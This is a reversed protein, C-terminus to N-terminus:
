DSQVFHLLSRSLDETQKQAPLIQVELMAATKDDIPFSRETYLTAAHDEFQELSALAAREGLLDAGTQVALAFAGWVGSSTSPECGANLLFERLVVARHEHSARIQRLINTLEGRGIKQVALDYTEVASLETRLCRNLWDVVENPLSASSESALLSSALLSAHPDAPPPAGPSRSDDASQM